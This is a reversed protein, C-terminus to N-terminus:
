RKSLEVVSDAQDALWRRLEYAGLVLWHLALYTQEMRGVHFDSRSPSQTSTPDRRYRELAVNFASLRERVVSILRNLEPERALFTAAWPGLADDLGREFSDMLEPKSALERIREEFESADVQDLADMFDEKFAYTSYSNSGFTYGARGLNSLRERPLLSVLYDATRFLRSYMFQRAPRWRRRELLWLVLPILAVTAVLLGLDWVLNGLPSALWNVFNGLGGGGICLTTM